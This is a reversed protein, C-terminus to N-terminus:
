TMGNFKERKGSGKGQTQKAMHQVGHQNDELVVALNNKLMFHLKINENLRFSNNNKVVNFM